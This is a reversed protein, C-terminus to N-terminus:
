RPGRPVPGPGERKSPGKDKVGKRFAYRVCVPGCGGLGLIFFIMDRTGPLTPPAVPSMLSIDVDKGCDSVETDTQVPIEDWGARESLSGLVM